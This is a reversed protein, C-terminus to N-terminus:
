NFIRLVLKIFIFLIKERDFNKKLKLIFSFFKEFKCLGKKLLFKKRIIKGMEKNIMNPLITACYLNDNGLLILIKLHRESQFIYFCDLFKCDADISVKKRNKPRFKKLCYYRPPNTMSNYTNLIKKKDMSWSIFELGKFQEYYKHVCKGYSETLIVGFNRSNPVFFFNLIYKISTIVIIKSKQLYINLIRRYELMILDNVKM